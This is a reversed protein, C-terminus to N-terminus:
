AKVVSYKYKINIMMAIKDNALLYYFVENILPNENGLERMDDKIFLM